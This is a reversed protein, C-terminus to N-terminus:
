FGFQCINIISVVIFSDFTHRTFNELTSIFHNSPTIYLSSLFYFRTNPVRKLTLPDILKLKIKIYEHSILSLVHSSTMPLLPSIIKNLINNKEM